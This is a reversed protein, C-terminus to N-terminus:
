QISNLFQIKLNDNKSFIGSFNSTVTETQTNKVGRATVCSHKAKIHVAVNKSKTLISLVEVIDNGIREQLQLRACVMEVMKVIKSIGVVFDIPFYAVSVHMDYILAAHHECLSFATIDKIVVMKKSEPPNDIEFTKNVIKAIETNSINRCCTLEHIMKVFREPTEPLIAINLNDFLAKAAKKAKAMSKIGKILHM